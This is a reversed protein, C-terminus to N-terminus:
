SGACLSLILSELVLQPPKNSSKFAVDAEIAAEYLRQLRTTSFHQSQTALQRCVSQPLGLTKTIRSMDHRQLLLQKVSWLLRLQRVVMGFIVLPPEGQQLLRDIVALAQALQRTGIADSLTFLSLHRSAQCIDQVDTAQIEEQEGVYTCLKAIEGQITQLDNEQEQLLLRIAADTIRHDWAAVARVVWEQLQAGQLRQCPVTVGKQRVLAPLKNMDLENSTCILATSESPQTAYQELHHLDPKRLHHLGHIVVVRRTALMPLTRAISLAEILTDNDAQFVDYNFDRAATGLIRECLTATHEQMLYTEAGFLVYLPDIHGQELRRVVQAMSLSPM